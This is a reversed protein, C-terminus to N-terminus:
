LFRNSSRPTAHHHAPFLVFRLAQAQNDPDASGRAAEFREFTEKRMQRRVASHREHQHLMKRGIMLAHQRLYQAAIGGDWHDFGLMAHVDFGVPNVDNRGVCGQRDLVAAEKDNFRRGRPCITSGDISEEGRQGFILAVVGNRNDQRADPAVPRGPEAGDLFAAPQRDRLGLEVM